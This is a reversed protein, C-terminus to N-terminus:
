MQLTDSVPPFCSCYTSFLVFYFFLYIIQTKQVITFHVLGCPYLSWQLSKCSLILKM